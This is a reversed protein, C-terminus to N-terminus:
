DGTDQDYDECGEERVEEMDQTGHLACLATKGNHELCEWCIKCDAM